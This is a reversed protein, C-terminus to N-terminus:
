DIREWRNFKPHPKKLVINFWFAPVTRTLFTQLSKNRWRRDPTKVKLRPLYAIKTVKSVRSALECDELYKLRRDFGGVQDYIKKRIAFNRGSFYHHGAALAMLSYAIPHLRILLKLFPHADNTWEFAGVLGGVEPNKEFFALIRKLWDPPLIADADTNAIIEGKAERCGLFRADGIGKGKQKIVRAGFDRAIEVTRDQSGGDVVIVEFPGEFEQRKLSDLCRPLLKEENLAPIVVSIIPKTPKM